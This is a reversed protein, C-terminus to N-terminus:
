RVARTFRSLSKSQLLWCLTALLLALVGILVHLAKPTATQPLEGVVKAYDWGDPLNTPVAATTFGEADRRAPTVDVAVLSTYKSVLHHELALAIVAGKAKEADGGTRMEDMLAAIKHRAWLVGM